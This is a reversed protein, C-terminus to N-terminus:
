CHHSPRVKEFGDYDIKLPEVGAEGTCYGRHTAKFELDTLNTVESLRSLDVKEVSAEEPEEEAKNTKKAPSM